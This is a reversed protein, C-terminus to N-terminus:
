RLRKKKKNQVSNIFEEKYFYNYKTSNKMLDVISDGTNSLVNPKFGHTILLDYIKDLKGFYDDSDIATHIMTFKNKDVHNVNLKYKLAYEICSYIFGESYGTYMAVQIFNYGCNDKKNPDLGLQLLIKIAEFTVVEDAQEDVLLHLWGMGYEDSFNLDKLILEVLKMNKDEISGKLVDLVSSIRKNM